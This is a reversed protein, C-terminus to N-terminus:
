TRTSNFSQKLQEIQFPDFEKEQQDDLPGSSFDFKRDIEDVDPDHHSSGQPDVSRKEITDINSIGDKKYEEYEKTYQEIIRKKLNEALDFVNNCENKVLQKEARDAKSYEPHHILKEVFLTMYRLYLVFAKEIDGKQELASASKILERGSHFYKSISINRDVEINHSMEVLRKVRVSPELVEEPKNSPKTTASTSTSM